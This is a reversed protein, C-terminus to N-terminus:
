RFVQHQGQVLDVRVVPLRVHQVADRQPDLAALHHAQEPPVAHALARRELGHHTEHARRTASDIELPSVHCPQRRVLQSAEPIAHTGSSRRM